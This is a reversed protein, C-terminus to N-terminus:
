EVALTKVGDNVSSSSVYGIAGPNNKIYDIVAADGSVSKPPTGTGTFLAKKWFINFQSSSKNVINKLFASHADGGDQVVPSIASGDAWSTKKGLFINKVDAKSLSVQSNDKNIIVAFDTAFILNALLTLAILILIKKM